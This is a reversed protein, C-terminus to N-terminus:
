FRRLIVIKEELLHLAVPSMDNHAKKIKNYKRTLRRKVESAANELIEVVIKAGDGGDTEIRLTPDLKLRREIQCIRVADLKQKEGANLTNKVVEDMEKLMALRVTHNSATDTKLGDIEREVEGLAIYDTRAEQREVNRDVLRSELDHTSEYIGINADMPVCIVDDYVADDDM